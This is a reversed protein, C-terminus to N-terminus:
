WGVILSLHPPKATCFSLLHFPPFCQELTCFILRYVVLSLTSIPGLSTYCPRSTYINGRLTGMLQMSHWHRQEFLIGVLLRRCRHLRGHHKTPIFRFADLDHCLNCGLDRYFADLLLQHRQRKLHSTAARICIHPRVSGFPPPHSPWLRRTAPRPPQHGNYGWSRCQCVNAYDLARQLEESYCRLRRRRRCPPRAALTASM